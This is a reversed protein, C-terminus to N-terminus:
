ASGHSSAPGLSQRNPKQADEPPRFKKGGFEKSLTEGEQSPECGRSPVTDTRVRTPHVHSATGTRSRATRWGTYITASTAASACPAPSRPSCRTPPSRTPAGRRGGRRDRHRHASEGEVGQRRADSAATISGALRAPASAPLCSQQRPETEGRDCRPRSGLVCSSSRSGVRRDSHPVTPKSSERARLTNCDVLVRSRPARSNSVSPSELSRKGGTGM